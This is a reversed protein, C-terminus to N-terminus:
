REMMKNIRGREVAIDSRLSGIETHVRQLEADVRKSSRDLDELGNNIVRLSATLEDHKADLDDRLNPNEASGHHNETHERIVETNAKMAKVMPMVKVNYLYVGMGLIISTSVMFLIIADVVGNGTSTILENLKLGLPM